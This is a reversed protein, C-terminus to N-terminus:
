AAGYPTALTARAAKEDATSRGFLYRWEAGKATWSAGFSFAAVGEGVLLSWYPGQFIKMTFLIWIAAALIGGACAWHYYRWFTPGFHPRDKRARRQGERIGFVVATLGLCLIFFGSAFQHISHTTPQTVAKQLPTLDPPVPNTPKTFGQQILAPPATPFLPILMAALGAFFSLTNDLNRETLKYAFLFFGITGISVTFVERMGSYYYISESGRPFPYGQFAGYDIFVLAFPLLVGILGIILRMVLFSRVYRGEGSQPDPRLEQVPALVFFGGLWILVGIVRGEGDGPRTSSRM